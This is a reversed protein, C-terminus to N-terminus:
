NTLFLATEMVIQSSQAVTAMAWCGSEGLAVVGGGALGTTTSLIWTVVM